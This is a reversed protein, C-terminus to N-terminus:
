AAAREAVVLHNNFPTGGWLPTVQVQLGAASLVEQFQGADPYRTPADKMWFTIRALYGYRSWPHEGKMGMTFNGLSYLIPKGRYWSVGQAVHPHHGIVIDAGAEVAAHVIKRTFLTPEEMYESGGHYSVIVMDAGPRLASERDLRKSAALM